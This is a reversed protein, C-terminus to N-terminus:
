IILYKQHPSSAPCRFICQIAQSFNSRGFLMPTDSESVHPEKILCQQCTLSPSQDLVRLAQTRLQQFSFVVWSTLKNIRHKPCVRRRGPPSDFMPGPVFTCIQLSEQSGRSGKSFILRRLPRELTRHTDWSISFPRRSHSWFINFDQRYSCSMSSTM